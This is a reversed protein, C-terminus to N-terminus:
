INCKTWLVNLLKIIKMNHPKLGVKVRANGCLFEFHGMYDEKRQLKVAEYTLNM